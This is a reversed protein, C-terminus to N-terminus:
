EVKLTIAASTITVKGWKADDRPPQGVVPLRAPPPAEKVGKPAPTVQTDLTAVLTYDGPETWYAAPRQRANSGYLLSNIPTSFTKGSGLTVEQAPVSARGVPAAPVMITMAGPGKLELVVQEPGDGGLMFRLEKDSTNRFELELEVKPTEPLAGQKNKQWDELQKRFQEATKGGLDLSYSDKKAVLRAELGPPDTKGQAKAVEVKLKVPASTVTVNGFGEYGPRAAADKPAPSVATQYTATLTYEGPKTWYAIGGARNRNPSVVNKIPLSHTKGPALRITEPRRSPQANLMAPLDINVAGPGVLKFLLPIDPNSGGALFSIEKDGTNRLELVLDVEPAPPHPRKKIQDRFEEETKGGLDLAYTDKKAVLKAELPVGPPDTKGKEEAKAPKDAPDIPAANGRYALLGLGAAVLGVTLLVSVAITLRSLFMAHIVGQAAAAAPASIGATSGGMFQCIKEVTTQVLVAPVAAPSAQETLATVLAAAGLAIGRRALRERLLDRARALRGGVTGEPWHLLRAAEERTKGELYCLVLPARYKEPLRNLEDDLLPRLERWAADNAPDPQAPIMAQREQARRHRAASRVRTAVRYAVGYLWSGVSDRRRISAAKRALVLFTGQFADDADNVDALLRRCVGWVMAAHREVLATFAAQDRQLTFQALLQGDSTGNAPPARFLRRIHQLVMGIQGSAM